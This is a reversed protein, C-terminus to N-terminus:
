ATNNPKVKAWHHMLHGVTVAYQAFKDCDNETDIPRRLQNDFLFQELHPTFNDKIWEITPIAYMEDPMSLVKRANIHNTVVLFAELDEKKMVRYTPSSPYSPKCATFVVSAIIILSLFLLLKKMVIFIM